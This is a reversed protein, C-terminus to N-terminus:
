PYPLSPAAERRGAAAQLEGARQRHPQTCVTGRGPRGQARAAARGRVSSEELSM